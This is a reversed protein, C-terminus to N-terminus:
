KNLQSSLPIPMVCVGAQMCALDVIVWSVTNQTDFGIRDVGLGQLWTACANVQEALEAYSLQTNQDQLALRDPHKAAHVALMPLLTM